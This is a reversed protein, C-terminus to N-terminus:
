HINGQLEIDDVHLTLIGDETLLNKHRSKYAQASYM